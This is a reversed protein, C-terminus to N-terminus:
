KKPQGVQKALQSCESFYAALQPNQGLLEAMPQLAEIAKHGTMKKTAFGDGTVVHELEHFVVEPESYEDETEELPLNHRVFITHSAYRTCGIAQSGCIWDNYAIVWTAEKWVFCQPLPPRM